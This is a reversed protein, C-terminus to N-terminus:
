EDNNRWIEYPEDFSRIEIETRPHEKDYYVRTGDGSAIVDRNDDALIGADVLIDHAAEELNTRDVRRRTPMFFKCCVEVPTSIPQKPKPILYWPAAKAYEAYRASPRVFPRGTKANVAIQQSNKKTVPPLPIIYKAILM